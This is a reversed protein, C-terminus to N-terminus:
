TGERQTTETEVLRARWDKRRSFGGYAALALLAASVALLVVAIPRQVFILWGRDSNILSQRLSM